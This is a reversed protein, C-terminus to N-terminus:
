IGALLAVPLAELAERVRIRGNEVAVMRGTLVDTLVDPADRLLVETDDWAWAPILPLGSETMRAAHRSALTV